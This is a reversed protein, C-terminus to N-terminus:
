YHIRLQEIVDAFEAPPEARHMAWAWIEPDEIETVLRLFAAREAPPANAYRHQHYRGLMVDLEKMGRRLLWRIRAESREANSM